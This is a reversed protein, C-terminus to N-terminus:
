SEYKLKDDWATPLMNKRNKQRNTPTYDDDISNLQKLENFTKPSRYHRKFWSTTNICCRYTRSM